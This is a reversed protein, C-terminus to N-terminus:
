ILLKEDEIQTDTKDVNSLDARWSSSEKFPSVKSKSMAGPAVPINHGVLPIPISPIAYIYVYYVYNYCIYIYICAYDINYLVICITCHHVYRCLCTGVYHYGGTILQHIFGM